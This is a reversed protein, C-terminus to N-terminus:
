YARRASFGRGIVNLTSGMITFAGPDTTYVLEELRKVQTNDIVTMLVEREQGTYTGQAHLFTSGRAMETNIRRAIEDVQDSIILVFRRANFMGLFYETVAGTIFVMAVSYLVMDVTFLGWGLAFVLGNFAFNTQGMRLNYRQNLLVAFVDTGGMSGMSRLAIGAGAGTVVGGALAALMPETVGLTWPVLEISITVASMGYLSYLFFRRSVKLWALAFVPLNILFFWAGPTLSDTGYFVLLAIGSLGGMLFGEPVIIAKFAWGYLFAGLTLLILNWWVSFTFRQLRESM